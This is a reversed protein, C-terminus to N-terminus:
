GHSFVDDNGHWCGKSSMLPLVADRYCVDLMYMHIYCHLLLLLSSLRLLSSLPLPPLPPPPWPPESCNSPSDVAVILAAFDALCLRIVVVGFAPTAVAAAMVVVDGYDIRQHEIQKEM